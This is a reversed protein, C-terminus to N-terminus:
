ETESGDVCVATSAATCVAKKKVDRPVGRRDPNSRLSKTVTRSGDAPQASIAGREVRGIETKSFNQTEKASTTRDIKKIQVPASQFGKNLPSRTNCSRGSRGLNSSPPYRGRAAVQKSKRGSGAISGRKRTNTM